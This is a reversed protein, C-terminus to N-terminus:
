PSSPDIIPKIHSYATLLLETSGDLGQRGSVGTIYYREGIKCVNGTQAVGRWGKIWKEDTDDGVFMELLPITDGARTQVDRIEPERLVIVEICYDQDPMVDVLPTRIDNLKPLTDDDDRRLLLADADLTINNGQIKTPMCEVVEGPTYGKSLGEIDIIHYITRTSDIGLVMSAGKDGQVISIIRMIMSPPEDTGEIQVTTSENGHVELEQNNMRGQVGLLHVKANPSIVKPVDADDKGWLVVRRITEDMGKIRMRLAHRPEGQKGTFNMVSVAGYLVGSVAVDRDTEELLSVDKTMSDVGPVQPLDDLRKIETSDGFNVVLSGDMDARIYAGGITIADGPKLNGLIPLAANKDWIKVNCTGTDDYINMTRLSLPSGDKRTLDRVPSVNMVRVELTVDSAGSYLREISMKTSLSKDLSIGMDQAVLFLAGKDTLYGAGIKSIKENIRQNIDAESLGSSSELLKAKLDEFEGMPYLSTKCLLLFQKLHNRRHLGSLLEDRIVNDERQSNRLIKNDSQLLIQCSITPPGYLYACLRGFM